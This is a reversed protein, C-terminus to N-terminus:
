PRRGLRIVNDPWEVPPLPRWYVDAINWLPSMRRPAVREVKDDDGRRIEVETEPPPPDYQWLRWDSM